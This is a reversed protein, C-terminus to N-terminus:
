QQTLGQNSISCQWHCHPQRLILKGAEHTDKCRMSSQEPAAGAQAQKVTCLECACRYPKFM